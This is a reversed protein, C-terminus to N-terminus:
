PRRGTSRTRSRGAAARGPQDQIRPRPSGPLGVRETRLAVSLSRPWASRRRSTARSAIATTATPTCRRARRRRRSRRRRRARGGPGRADVLQLVQDEDDLLVAAEILVEAGVRAGVADRRVGVARERDAHRVLELAAGAHRRVDCPRDVLVAPRVVVDRRDVVDFAPLIFPKMSESGGRGVFHQVVGCGGSHSTCSPGCPWGSTILVWRRARSGWSSPRRRGSCAAPGYTRAPRSRSAAM